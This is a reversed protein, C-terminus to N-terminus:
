RRIAVVRDLGSFDQWIEIHAQPCAKKFIELVSKGQKYGIELFIFGAPNLQEFISEALQKYISLGDEEAFLALKPEFKKVSDDMVDLERKSIYPPNSLIVDFMEGSVPALLDGQKFRVEANLNKANKKAIALAAKSIDTATVQDQPRELKTTIALIGTGTGIDLVNQSQEPLIELVQNLWEETEPRPILTDETVKFKRHYFWEHGVIQQIPKGKLFAVIDADFQKRIKEPMMERHAKVLDTKSWGQRECLLWEAVLPSLNQENLFSSARNLAEHYTIPLQDSTSMNYISWNRHKTRSVYNKSLKM